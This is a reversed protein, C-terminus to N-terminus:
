LEPRFSDVLRRFAEPEQEHSVVMVMYLRDDILISRLKAQAGDIEIRVDLAPYTRDEYVFPDDNLGVIRGGQDQAAFTAGVELQRSASEGTPTTVLPDSFVVAFAYDGGPESIAFHLDFGAPTAESRESPSTPFDVTYRGGASGYEVGGGAV